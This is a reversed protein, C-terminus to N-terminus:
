LRSDAQTGAQQQATQLFNSLQHTHTFESFFRSARVEGPCRSHCSDELCILFVFQKFSHNGKRLLWKLNCNMESSHFFLM